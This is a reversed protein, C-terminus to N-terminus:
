YSYYFKVVDGQQNSPDRTRIESVSHINTDQTQQTNHLYRGTRRASWENLSNRGVTHRITHSGSVQVRLQRSEGEAKAGCVTFYKAFSSIVLGCWDVPRDLQSCDLLKLGTSEKRSARLSAVVVSTEVTFGQLLVYSSSTEKKGDFLIGIELNNSLFNGSSKSTFILM